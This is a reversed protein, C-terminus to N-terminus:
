LYDKDEFDEEGETEQDDPVLCECQDIPYGCDSCFREPKIYFAV